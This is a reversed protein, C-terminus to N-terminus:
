RVSQQMLREAELRIASASILFAESITSHRAPSLSIAALMGILQGDENFVPGGSYGGHIEDFIAIIGTGFSKLHVSSDTVRGSLQHARAHGSRVTAGFAFVRAGVLVPHSPTPSTVSEQQDIQIIALDMRSSKAIIIGKVRRSRPYTTVLTIREGADRGHLTHANTAVLGNGLAVGSGFLRDNLITFHKNAVDPSAAFAQISGFITSAFVCCVILLVLRKVRQAFLFRFVPVGHSRCCVM